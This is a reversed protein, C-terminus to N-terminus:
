CFISYLYCKDFCKKFSTLHFIIEDRDFSYVGRNRWLLYLSNDVKELNGIVHMVLPGILFFCIAMKLLYFILTFQLYSCSVLQNVFQLLM